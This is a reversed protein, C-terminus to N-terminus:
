QVFFYYSRTCVYLLFCNPSYPDFAHDAALINKGKPYKMKFVNYCKELSVFMYIDM